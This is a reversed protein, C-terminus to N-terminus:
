YELYQSKHAIQSKYNNRLYYNIIGDYLASYLVLIQKKTFDLEQLYKRQKEIWDKDPFQNYLEECSQIRRNFLEAM